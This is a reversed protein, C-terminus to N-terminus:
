VTCYQYLILTDQEAQASQGLAKGEHSGFQVREL